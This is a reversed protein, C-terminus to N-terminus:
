APPPPVVSGTSRAAALVTIFTELDTLPLSCHNEVCVFAAPGDTVTTKGAAPHGEPLTAGPAIVQLTHNPLCIDRVLDLLADTKEEGRTGVIVIDVSRNLMEFAKLLTSFATGMRTYDGAFAVITANASEFYRKDGTLHYLTALAHAAMANGAPVANDVAHRTRAILAEADDATLYYGNREKNLYHADLVDMWQRARDLYAEDGTVDRLAIAANAMNAYDDLLGTHHAIGNRSSHLLRAPDKPDSHTSVIADFARKAATIWSEERFVAGAEALASIMLGNWDALVKDDWGPKVRKERVEFLVRHCHELRDVGRPSVGKPHSQLRNLITKGEWNGGPRVDYIEAFFPYDDGLLKSLEDATWVYYKGEEGESDADQSAAFAGTETVMERLVWAVTDRVRAVYLPDRVDQWVHTYLSLLQANDYLMKEFHPVLWAEDVTYRSFGGGIHDYIGGLALHDLTRTVCNRYLNDGTRVYARWVLEYVYPQPFKPAGRMGGHHKDSSKIAADAVYVEAKPQLLGPAPSEAIQNLRDTLGTVNNSITNKDTKYVESVRKLVDRFAPRGYNAEPPFYTGGWFPKGDPQLFMTLPWGGQQGLISLANMYISDVDPREERDVKINVFHENMLAAIEPNEFSEHEMVHCWHCAAYGISLLIPKDEAQAHDLVEQRWPQWHVPNDKHRLLYPSTEEGLRNTRFPDTM